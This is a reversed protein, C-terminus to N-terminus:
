NKMKRFASRVDKHDENIQEAMREDVQRISIPRQHMHEMANMAESNDSTNAVTEDALICSMGGEVGPKSLHLM